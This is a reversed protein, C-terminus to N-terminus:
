AREIILAGGQGGGVCMTILAYRKKYENLIYIAKVTLYAGTAGVPHGLAIAGGWVNLKENPIQLVKQCALAQAAFAENLEFFDIEDIKLQAKQLAKPVAFIPGEGMYAPDCAAYAYEVIYAQPEIKLEKAKSESMILMAAAGDSIPCSNKPTITGIDEIKTELIVKGEKLESKPYQPQYINRDMFITPFSSALQKTLSPNICEDEAVVKENVLLKGSINTINQIIVPVIQSKFKGERKARFAKQHSWVAFEDQEERSINYKRAINEATRGMIQNVIPDTLGEWLGDILYYHQLRLGTRVFKLLYPVQSMNETGGVLFIKGDGAKFAQCASTIAQIGSACNRQVSYAPINIPLHSLLASVRAINAADSPQCVNGVIIEDILNPDIGTRKLVEKFCIAMLQAASVDKLSGLFAGIPTRVAGAIILREM